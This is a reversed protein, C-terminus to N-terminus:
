TGSGTPQNAAYELEAAQGKVVDLEARTQELEAHLKRLTEDYAEEPYPKFSIELLHDFVVVALLLRPCWWPATEGTLGRLLGVLAGRDAQALRALTVPHGSGLRRLTANVDRPIV